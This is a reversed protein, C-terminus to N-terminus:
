PKRELAVETFGCHGKWAGGPDRETVKIELRRVQAGKPLPVVTPEIEDKGMEASFSEKERNLRVSVRRIRDYKGLDARRSCAGNLVLLDAKIPKLWELVLTPESDDEKCVWLTAELGDCVKEPKQEPVNVSSASASIAQALLLNRDRAQAALKMWPELTGDSVVEVPKSEITAVPAVLKVRARVAYSGPQEFTHRVLYDEASWAKSPDGEVREIVAGGALYEVAAIRVGGERALVADGFGRIWLAVETRGTARLTVPAKPDREPEERLGPEGTRVTLRSARRLFLMGFCTDTEEVVERWASPGYGRVAWTGDEGQNKLLWRAGELYWAHEGFKEIGLLTGVRELGYLYYYHNQAESDGFNQELNFRHDLWATGLQLARAAELATQAKIRKGLATRCISVIAVGAATMSGSIGRDPRYRFGAIPTKATGTRGDKRPAEVEIPAEQLALTAELARSWAEDSVELGAHQAARLGLVAYQTNSLDTRPLADDYIAGPRVAPAYSWSGASEWALLEKLLARMKDRWAPDATAEFAMLMLGASYTESAPTRSLVELARAVSPHAPALGSRLLAYACLATQGGPFSTSVNQWSGDRLQRSLLTAIGREIAADIAPQFDPPPAERPAPELNGAVTFRVVQIRANEPALGFRGIAGSGVEAEHVVQGDVLFALREGGRRAELDFPTGATIRRGAEPFVTTKGGFLPGSASMAGKEGDLVFLSEGLQLAAQTAERKVIALKIRISFDGPGLKLDAFMANGKGSGEIWGRGPQWPSGQFVVNQYRQGAVLVREELKDQVCALLSALAPGVLLGLM